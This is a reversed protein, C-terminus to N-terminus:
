CNHLDRQRQLRGTVSDRIRSNKSRRSLHERQRHSNRDWNGNYLQIKCLYIYM